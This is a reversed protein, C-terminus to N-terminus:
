INYSRYNFFTRNCHFFYFSYKRTTLPVHTYLFKNSCANAFADLSLFVISERNRVRAKGRIFVFSSRSFNFDFIEIPIVNRANMGQWLCGVAKKRTRELHLHSTIICVVKPERRGICTIRVFNKLSACLGANRALPIYIYTSFVLCVFFNFTFYLTVQISKTM